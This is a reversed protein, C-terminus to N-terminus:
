PSQTQGRGARECPQEWDVQETAGEQDTFGMNARKRGNPSLCTIGLESADGAPLQDGACRPLPTSGPVGAQCKRMSDGGSEQQAQFAGQHRSDCATGHWRGSGPLHARAARRETMEGLYAVREACTHAEHLCLWTRSMRFWMRLVPGPRAWGLSSPSGTPTELAQIRPATKLVACFLAEPPEQGVLSPLLSPHQLAFGPFYHSEPRHRIAIKIDKQQVALTNASPTGLLCALTNACLERCMFPWCSHVCANEYVAVSVQLRASACSPVCLFSFGLACLLLLSCAAASGLM